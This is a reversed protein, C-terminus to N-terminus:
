LLFVIGTVFVFSNFSLNIHQDHTNDNHTKNTFCGSSLPFM